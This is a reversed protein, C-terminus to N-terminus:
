RPDLQSTSFSVSHGFYCKLMLFSWFLVHIMLNLILVFDVLFYNLLFHHFSFEFYMYNLMLFSWFSVYIMLYLVVLVLLILLSSSRLRRVASNIPVFAAYRMAKWRTNKNILPNPLVIARKGQRLRCSDARTRNM